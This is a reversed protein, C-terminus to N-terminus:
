QESGQKLHNTIELFSGELTQKQPIASYIKINAQSLVAIARAVAERDAHILVALEVVQAEVGELQGSLVQLAREPQDVDLKVEPNTETLDTIRREMILEGNQIIAVRDCMMEIENLLHSSIFVAVGNKAILLLLERFERMGSPDLGNTPEDLVLIKPNALLAQALGLRQRMGLSYTKVKDNIRDSLGVLRIAEDIKKDREKSELRALRAYQVLNQRGTLYSYTEPNEVITGVSAMARSRENQIDHGGIRITGTTPKILGVIMRITTTKGAGNPGLFGYIEGDNVTLSVNKVLQRGKVTKSVNELTLVAM